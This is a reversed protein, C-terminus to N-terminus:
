VDSRQVQKRLQGGKRKIFWETGSPCENSYKFKKFLFFYHTAEKNAATRNMQM